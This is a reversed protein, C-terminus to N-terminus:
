NLMRSKNPIQIVVGLHPFVRDNRVPDWKPPILSFSREAPPQRLPKCRESFHHRRPCTQTEEHKGDEGEASATGYIRSSSLAFLLSCLAFPLSCLAFTLAFWPHRGTARLLRLLSFALRL